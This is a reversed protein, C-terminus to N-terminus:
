SCAGWAIIRKLRSLVNDALIRAPVPAHRAPAWSGLYDSDACLPRGSGGTICAELSSRRSEAVVWFPPEHAHTLSMRTALRSQGTRGLAQRIARARRQWAEPFTGATNDSALDPPFRGPAQLIHAHV